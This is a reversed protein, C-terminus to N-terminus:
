SSKGEKNTKETILTQVRAIQKRMDKFMHNKAFEGTSKQLKLKFQERLLKSLEENLESITKERLSTASM